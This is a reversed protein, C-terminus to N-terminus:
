PMVDIEFVNESKTKRLAAFLTLALQPALEAPGADTDCMYLGPNLWPEVHRYDYCELTPLM